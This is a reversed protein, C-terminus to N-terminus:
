RRTFPFLTRLGVRMPSESAKEDSGRNASTRAGNATVSTPRHTSAFQEPTLSQVPIGEDMRPDNLANMCISATDVDGLKRAAQLLREYALRTPQLHLSTIFCNAAEEVLGLQMLTTGLVRYGAAFEPDSEIAARQIAVAASIAHTDVPKALQFETQGLLALAQSGELVGGAARALQQRSYELYAETAELSTFSSLDAHKLVTTEHVDVMRRLSAADIMGFEGCFDRSERIADLAVDLEGSHQNGGEQADRMAVVAQMAKMAYKRATHTAGRQLSQQSTYLSHQALEQLRTTHLTVSPTPPTALGPSILAPVAEFSPVPFLNGSVEAAFEQSGASLPSLSQESAVMGPMLISSGPHEEVFVPESQLVSLSEASHFQTKAARTEEDTLALLSPPDNRETSAIAKFLPRDQQESEGQGMCPSEDPNQTGVATEIGREAQSKAADTAVSPKPVQKIRAPVSAIEPVRTTLPTSADRTAEFKERLSVDKASPSDTSLDTPAPTAGSIEVVSPTASSEPSPSKWTPLPNRSPPVFRQQGAPRAHIGDRQTSLQQEVALSPPGVEDSPRRAVRHHRLYDSLNEHDPASTISKARDQDRSEVNAERGLHSPLIPPPLDGVSTENISLSPAAVSRNAFPSKDRVLDAFSTPPSAPSAQGGRHTRQSIPLSSTPGAMPERQSAHVPSKIEGPQSDGLGERSPETQVNSNSLARTSGRDALLSRLSTATASKAGTEAFTTTTACCLSLALALRRAFADRRPSEDM